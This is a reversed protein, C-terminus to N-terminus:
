KRRLKILYLIVINNILFKVLLCFMCLVILNLGAVAPEGVGNSAICEILGAADKDTVQILRRRSVEASNEEGKIRWTIAPYPIGTPECVM